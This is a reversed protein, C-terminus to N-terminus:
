DHKVLLDIRKMRPAFFRVILHSMPEALVRLNQFRMYISLKTKDESIPELRATELIRLNGPTVHMEVTFYEFPRWDLVTEVVMGVGHNCHNVAGSGMLGRPRSHASWHLPTPYWQNRKSPDNLWEWAIPPPVSLELSFMGDADDPSIAIRRTQVISQYREELDLGYTKIEDSLFEVGQLRDASQSLHALGTETILVYGRWGATNAVVEKWKRNRVFTPALGLLTRKGRIDSFLYEGYHVIFKLDLSSVNRCAACTCTMRRSMANLRNKFGTYVSDILEFLSEFRTITSDPAYAFVSDMDFDHVAFLPKIQEAVYELLEQLIEGAHELEVDIM